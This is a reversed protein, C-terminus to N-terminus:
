KYRERDVSPFVSVVKKAFFIFKAWIQSPCILHAGPWVKQTLMVLIAGKSSFTSTQPLFQCFLFPGFDRNQYCTFTPKQVRKTWANHLENTKILYNLTPSQDMKYYKEDM